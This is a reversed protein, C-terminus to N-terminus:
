DITAHRECYLGTRRTGDDEILEISCAAERLCGVVQCIEPQEGAPEALTDVTVVKCASECLNDSVRLKGDELLAEEPTKITATVRVAVDLRVMAVPGCITRLEIWTDGSKTRIVPCASADVAEKNGAQYYAAIAQGILQGNTLM